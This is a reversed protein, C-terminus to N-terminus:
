RLNVRLEPPPFRLTVQSIRFAPLVRRSCIETTTGSLAKLRVGFIPRVRGSAEISTSYLQTRTTQVLRRPLFRHTFPLAISEGLRSLLRAVPPITMELLPGGRADALLMRRGYGVDDEWVIRGLRKPIGWNATGSARSLESTVWIDSISHGRYLYRPRRGFSGTEERRLTVRGPIYLFESYAGADSSDYDLIMIVGFGRPGKQVRGSRELEEPPLAGKKPALLLVYGSGSLSWPPPVV